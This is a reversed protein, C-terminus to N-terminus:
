LHFRLLLLLSTESLWLCWRQRSWVNSLENTNSVICIFSLDPNINDDYGMYILIIHRTLDRTIYFFKWKFFFSLTRFITKAQPFFTRKFAVFFDYIFSSESVYTSTLTCSQARRSVGVSPFNLYKICFETIM